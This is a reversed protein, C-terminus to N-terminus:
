PRHDPARHDDPHDDHHDAPRDDPVHKVEVPQVVTTRCGSLVGALSAAMLITAFHKPRIM